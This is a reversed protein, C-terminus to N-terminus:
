DGRSTGLHQDSRQILANVFHTTGINVAQIASPDVRPAKQLVSEIAKQVGQTVDVTTPTKTAALVVRKADPSLDLIVADTNTGGMDVGIRLQAENGNVTLWSIRLLIRNSSKLLRIM